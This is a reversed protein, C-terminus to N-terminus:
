CRQFTHLPCLSSMREIYDIMKLIYLMSGFNGLLAFSCFQCVFLICFTSLVFHLNVNIAKQVLGVDKKKKDKKKEQGGDGDRERVRERDREEKKRLEKRYKEQKRM